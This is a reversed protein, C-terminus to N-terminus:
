ADRKEVLERAAEAIAKVLLSDKPEHSPPWPFPFTKLLLRLPIGFAARQMGSKLARRGQGFRTFVLTCRVSLIIMM